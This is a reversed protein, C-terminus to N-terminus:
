PKATLEAAFCCRRMPPMIQGADRHISDAHLRVDQINFRTGCMNEEYLPGKKGVCQFANMIHKRIKNMYQAATTADVVINAGDM